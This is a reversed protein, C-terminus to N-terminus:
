SFRKTKKLEMVIKAITQKFEGPKVIHYILTAILNRLDHLRKEDGQFELYEIVEPLKFAENLYRSQIIPM